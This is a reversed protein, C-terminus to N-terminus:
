VLYMINVPVPFCYFPLYLHIYVSTCAEPHFVDHGCGSHACRRDSAGSDGADDWTALSLSAPLINIFVM